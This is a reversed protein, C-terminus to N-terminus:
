LNVAASTGSPFRSFAPTRLLEENKRALGGPRAVKEVETADVELAVARNLLEISLVLRFLNKKRVLIGETGALAGAKVRVWDGCKLFPHPEVSSVTAVARRVAEIEEAPIVSPAGGSGVFEYVGPTKLVDIRRALCSWLFVYTPFLPLSLQKTRDKWRHGVRYLPLFVEFGKNTLMNAISKEHQHRTYLAYWAHAGDCCCVNGESFGM